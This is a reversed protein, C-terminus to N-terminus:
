VDLLLRADRILLPIPEKFAFYNNVLKWDKAIGSDIIQFCYETKGGLKYAM